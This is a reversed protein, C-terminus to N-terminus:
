VIGLLIIKIKWQFHMGQWHNKIHHQTSLEMTKIYLKSFADPSVFYYLMKRLHKAEDGHSNTLSKGLLQKVSSPWWGSVNGFLFKNAAPGCMVVMKEGMLSTKFVESQYKDM